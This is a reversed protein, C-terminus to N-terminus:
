LYYSMIILEGKKGMRREGEDVYGSKKYLSQAVDNQVNVALVIENINIFNQKVFSPLLELAQKAYGKGLYRYDTSFTRLLIAHSNTSYPKVGANEHLNFFTVLKGEEIALIAYRDLDEKVLEMSDTPSGTYRLQEETLQYQKIAKEYQEGYFCLEM